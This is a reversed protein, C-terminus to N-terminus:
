PQPTPTSHNIITATKDAVPTTPPTYDPYKTEKQSPQFFPVKKLIIEAIPNYTDSGTRKKKGFM